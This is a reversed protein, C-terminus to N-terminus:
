RSTAASIMQARVEKVLMEASTGRMVQQVSMIMVICSCSRQPLQQGKLAVSKRRAPKVAVLILQPFTITQANTTRVLHIKVVANKPRARRHVVCLRPPRIIVPRVSMFNALRTEGAASKAGVIRRLVFKVPMKWHTSVPQVTTPRVDKIETAVSTQLVNQQSALKLLVKTSILLASTTTALLIRRVASM